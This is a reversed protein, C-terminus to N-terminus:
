CCMFSNFNSYIGSFTPKHYVTTTFGKNNRSILIDVFPLSRNVGKENTFKIIAHKTNVYENFKELDHPSPFLVFIVDVYRKYYVLKFEDPCDNLCIQKYHALFANALSRDLPSGIAVGDFPQYFFVM